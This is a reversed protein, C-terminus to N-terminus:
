GRFNEVLLSMDQKKMICLTCLALKFCYLRLNFLEWTQEHEVQEHPRHTCKSVNIVIYIAACCYQQKIAPMAGAAMSVDAHGTCSGLNGGFWGFGTGASCTDLWDLKPVQGSFFGARGPLDGEPAPAIRQTAQM